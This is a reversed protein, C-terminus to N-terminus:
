ATGGKELYFSSSTSRLTFQGGGKQLWNQQFKILIKLKVIAREIEFVCLTPVLSEATHIEQRDLKM